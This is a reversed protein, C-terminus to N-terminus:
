AHGSAPSGASTRLEEPEPEGGLFELLEEESMDDMYRVNLLRRDVFMGLEKGLLELARNAATPNRNDGEGLCTEANKKLKKMIYARDVVVKDAAKHQLEQLRAQINENTKLRGANCRNPKYGADQYAQDATKGAALGQVFREHRPNKLAPM